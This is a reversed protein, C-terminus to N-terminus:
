EDWHGVAEFAVGTIGRTLCVSMFQESVVLFSSHERLRVIHSGTPWQKRVFTHTPDCTRGLRRRYFQGCTSCRTITLRNRTAEDLLSRPECFIGLYTDGPAHNEKITIPVGELEVGSDRLVSLITPKIFPTWPSGWAFDAVAGTFVGSYRGVDAGPVVEFQRRYVQFLRATLAEFEQPSLAKGMAETLGSPLGTLDTLPYEVYPDGYRRGCAHCVLDPLHHSYSGDLGDSECPLGPRIRYAAIM